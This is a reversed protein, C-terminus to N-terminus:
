SVLKLGAMRSFQHYDTDRAILGVDHDLCSQAILTDALPAKRKAALLRARLFGARDWYGETPALM